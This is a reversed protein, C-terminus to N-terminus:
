LLLFTLKLLETAPDKLIINVVFKLFFVLCRSYSIDASSANNTKKERGCAVKTM